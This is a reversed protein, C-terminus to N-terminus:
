QGVKKGKIAGKDIYELTFNCMQFEIDPTADYIELAISMGRSYNIKPRVRDSFQNQNNFKIYGLAKSEGELNQLFDATHDLDSQRGNLLYRMFMNRNGTPDIGPYFATFRVNRGEAITIDKSRFRKIIPSGDFNRGRDAIMIKNVDSRGLYQICPEVTPDTIM